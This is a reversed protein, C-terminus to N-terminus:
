RTFATWNRRNSTRRLRTGPCLPSVFLPPPACTPARRRDSPNLKRPGTLFLLSVLRSTCRQVCTCLHGSQNYRIRWVYQVFSARQDHHGSPVSVGSYGSLHCPVKVINKEKETTM